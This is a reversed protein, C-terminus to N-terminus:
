SSLLEGLLTFALDGLAQYFGGCYLVAQLVLLLITLMLCAIIVNRAREVTPRADAPLYGNDVRELERDIWGLALLVLVGGPVALCSMGLLAVIVGVIATTVAGRTRPRPAEGGAGFLEDVDDRAM